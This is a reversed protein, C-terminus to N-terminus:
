KVVFLAFLVFTTEVNTSKMSKMTYVIVM